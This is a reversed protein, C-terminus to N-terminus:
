REDSLNRAAPPGEPACAGFIVQMRHDTPTFKMELSKARLVTKDKVTGSLRAVDADFEGAIEGQSRLEGVKVKGRVAGSAAVTLSPAILDGEVHGKVDIPCTSTFSGKFETGEEVLTRPGQTTANMETGRREKSEDDKSRVSREKSGSVEEEPAFWELPEHTEPAAPSALSRAADERTPLRAEDFTRAISAPEDPQSLLPPAAPRAVIPRADGHHSATAAGAKPAAAPSKPALIEGPTAANATGANANRGKASSESMSHRRERTQRVHSGVSATDSRAGDVTPLRQVWIAHVKGFVRRTRALNGCRSGREPTEDDM